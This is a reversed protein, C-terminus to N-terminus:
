TTGLLNAVTAQANSLTRIADTLRARANDLEISSKEVDLIPLLSKRYRTKAVEYSDSKVNVLKEIIDKEKSRQILLILAEIADEEANLKENFFSRIEKQVDAEAGDFAATDAGGHFLNATIVTGITPTINLPAEQYHDDTRSFQASLSPLF